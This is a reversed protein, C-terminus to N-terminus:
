ASANYTEIALAYWAEGRNDPDGGAGLAKDAADAAARVRRSKSNTTAFARIRRWTTRNADSPKSEAVERPLFHKIAIDLTQEIAARMERSMTQGLMEAIGVCAKAHDHDLLEPSAIWDFLDVGYKESILALAKSAKREAAEARWTKSESEAPALEAPMTPFPIHPFGSPCNVDGDQGILEGNIPVLKRFCNTCSTAQPEADRTTLGLWERGADTARHYPFADCEEILGLTRLRAYTGPKARKVEEVSAVGAFFALTDRQTPTLKVKDPKLWDRGLETVELNSWHLGSSGERFAVLSLKRLNAFDTYTPSYASRTRDTQEAAAVLRLGKEQSDTLKIKM